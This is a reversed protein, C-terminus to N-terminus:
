WFENQIKFRSCSIHCMFMADCPSCPPLLTFSIGYQDTQFSQACCLAFLEEGVCVGAACVIETM